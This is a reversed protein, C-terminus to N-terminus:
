SAVQALTAAAQRALFEHLANCPHERLEREIKRLVKALAEFDEVNKVKGDIVFETATTRYKGNTIKPPRVNSTDRLTPMSYNFATHFPIGNHMIRWFTQDAVHRSTSGSLGALRALDDAQQQLQSTYMTKM